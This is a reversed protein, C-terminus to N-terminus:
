TCYIRKIKFYVLLILYYGEVMIDAVMEHINVIHQDSSQAIQKRFRLVIMSTFSSLHSYQPGSLNLLKDLIVLIYSILIWTNRQFRFM